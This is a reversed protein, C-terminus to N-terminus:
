GELFRREREEVTNKVRIKNEDPDNETESDIEEDMEREIGYLSEIGSPSCLTTGRRNKKANENSSYEPANLGPTMQVSHRVVGKMKGGSTHFVTEAHDKETISYLPKEFRKSKVTPGIYLTIPAMSTIYLRTKALWLLIAYPAMIENDWEPYNRLKENKKDFQTMYNIMGSIGSFQTPLARISAELAGKHKRKTEFKRGSKLVCSKKQVEEDVQVRLDEESGADVCLLVASHPCPMGDALKNHAAPSNPEINM